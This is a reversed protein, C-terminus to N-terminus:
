KKVVKMKEIVVDKFPRNRNDTKVAAIADIVELGEVIEGFVTYDGDLHPAGGITKYSNIMKETFFYDPTKAVIEDLMPTVEDVFVKYAEMDRAQQIKKFRMKYEINATDTLFQSFAKQRLQMNKQRTLKELDEPLFIKGHVIYFQSGSSEKEPNINDGLRAAALAGKKHYLTPKIEAPLTYGLGGNGLVAGSDAGRSDPDGGQIMFQNIVRHFLLDNYFGDEVLKIFNDRHKPTENFLKVKLEGFNTKILVLREDEQALLLSFTSVFLTLTLIFKKM